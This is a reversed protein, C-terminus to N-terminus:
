MGNGALSLRRAVLSNSNPEASLKKLMSEM